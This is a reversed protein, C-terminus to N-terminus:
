YEYFLPCIVHDKMTTRNNHLLVSALQPWASLLLFTTCQLHASSVRKGEHHPIWGSKNLPMSHSANPTGGCREVECKVLIYLISRFM